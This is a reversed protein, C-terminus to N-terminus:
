EHRREHWTASLRNISERMASPKLRIAWLGIAWLPITLIAFVVISFGAASDKDVGFITLGLITFFQYTGINAPAGPLANGLHVILFVAAGALFPLHLGYARIVLWFSSAQLLLMLASLMFAPASTRANGIAHMEAVMRAVLRVWTTRWRSLRSQRRQEKEGTAVPSSKVSSLRDGILTIVLFLALGALVVAVMVDGAKVLDRPLPVYILMLFIGATLWVGDFLREVLMSAVVTSLRVSMWSAVLYARVLEGMKMPLVEHSFLGAYVARTSRLVSIRGAPRLLLRWRMGQCVYSSADCIIALTVLLPDMLRARNVFGGFDFDHFAWILCAVAALYGLAARLWRWSNGDHRGSAEMATLTSGSYDM